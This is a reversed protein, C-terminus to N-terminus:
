NQILGHMFSPYKCEGHFSQFMLADGQASYSM